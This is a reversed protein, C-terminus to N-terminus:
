RYISWNTQEPKDTILTAHNDRIVVVGKGMEYFTSTKLNTYDFYRADHLGGISVVCYRNYTDWGIANLHQHPTVVHAQYKLALERGVRLPDRSAQMQHPIVWEKGGSHLHIRDYSYFLVRGADEPNVMLRGLDDITMEGDSAADHLFWEDHNGPIAYINKITPCDNAFYSFVSRAAMCQESLTARRVRSKHHKSHGDLTDGAFVISTTGYYRIVGKLRRLFEYDTYPLHLDAIVLTNNEHIHPHANFVPLSGDDEELGYRYTSVKIKQSGLTVKKARLDRKIGAVANRTIGHKEAIQAYSLTTMLDAIMEQMDLDKRAVAM